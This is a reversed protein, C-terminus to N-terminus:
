GHQLVDEVLEIDKDYTRVEGSLLDQMLGKKLSILQHKINEEQNLNNDISMLLDGIKEQETKNPVPVQFKKLIGQGINAQTTQRSLSKLEAQHYDIVYRLYNRDAKPSELGVIAQNTSLERNAFATKGISGYIAILLAGESFTKTQNDAIADKTTYEETESIGRLERGTMDEIKVFPMYDNNWYKDEGRRPTGGSDIRDYLEGIPVLDWEKPIKKGKISKSEHDFYGETFVDQMVGKKLREIQKIVRDTKEITQDVTYLVSAIKRQEELSPTPLNVDRINSQSLHKVTTGAISKQIYWLPKEIAYRLFVKNYTQDPEIRCVRQNLLARGGSWFHPEFEGDMGVLLDFDQILYRDDYKGTYNATTGDSDLDRIRILPIGGEDVFYDSSFNSGTTISINSEINNAEWDDPLSDIESWAVGNILQPQHSVSSEAVEDLTADQESM